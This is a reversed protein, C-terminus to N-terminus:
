LICVLWHNLKLTKMPYLTIKSCISCPFCFTIKFDAGILCSVTIYCICIFLRTLGDWIGCFSIGIVM